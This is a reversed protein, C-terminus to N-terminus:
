EGRGESDQGMRGRVPCKSDRFDAMSLPGDINGTSQLTNYVTTTKDVALADVTKHGDEDTVTLAISAIDSQVVAVENGGNKRTSYAM